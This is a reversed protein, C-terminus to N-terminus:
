TDLVVNAIKMYKTVNKVIIQCNKVIKVIKAGNKVLMKVNEVNKFENCKVCHKSKGNYTSDPLNNVPSDLSEKMFRVTDIFRKM